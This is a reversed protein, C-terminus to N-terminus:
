DPQWTDENEMKAQAQMIYFKERLKELERNHIMIKNVKVGAAASFLQYENAVGGFRVTDRFYTCMEVMDM